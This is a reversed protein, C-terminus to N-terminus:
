AQDIEKKHEAVQENIAALDGAYALARLEGTSRLRETMPYPGGYLQQLEGTDAVLREHEPQSGEELWAQVAADFVDAELPPNGDLPPTEAPPQLQGAKPRDELGLHYGIMLCAACSGTFVAAFVWFIFEVIM